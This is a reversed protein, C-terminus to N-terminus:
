GIVGKKPGLKELEKISGITPPIENCAKKYRGITAKVIAVNSAIVGCLCMFLLMQLFGGGITVVRCGKHLIGLGFCFRLFIVGYQDVTEVQVMESIFSFGGSEIISGVLLYITIVATWANCTASVIVMVLDSINQRIDDIELLVSGGGWQVTLSEYDWYNKPHQVNNDAYVRALSPTGPRRFSKGIKQAM